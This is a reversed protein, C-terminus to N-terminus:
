GNNILYTLLYFCEYLLMILSHTKEEWCNDAM